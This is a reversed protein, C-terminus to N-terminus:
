CCKRRVIAQRESVDLDLWADPAGAAFGDAYLRGDAAALPLTTAAAGLGPALADISAVSLGDEDTTVRLDLEAGRAFRARLWAAAGCVLTWRADAIPGLRATLAWWAAAISGPTAADRALSGCLAHADDWRAARLAEVFRAATRAVDEDAAAAPPGGQLLWPGDARARLADGTREIAV